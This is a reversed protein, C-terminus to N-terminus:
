RHWERGPMRSDHQAGLPNKGARASDSIPSLSPSAKRRGSKSRRIQWAPSPFLPSLESGPRPAERRPTRAAQQPPATGWRWISCPASAARLVHPSASSGMSGVAGSPLGANQLGSQARGAREGWSGRGAARRPKTLCAPPLAPLCRALAGRAGLEKLLRNQSGGRPLPQPQAEQVGDPRHPLGTGPPRLGGPSSDWSGEAPETVRQKLLLNTGNTDTKM